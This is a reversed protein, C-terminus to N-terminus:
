KYPKWYPKTPMEGMKVNKMETKYVAIRPDACDGYADCNLTGTM